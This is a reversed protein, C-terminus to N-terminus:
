HFAFAWKLVKSFATHNFCLCWKRNLKVTTLLATWHVYVLYKVLFDLRDITNITNNVYQEVVTSYFAGITDAM